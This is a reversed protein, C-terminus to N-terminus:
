GKNFNKIHYNHHNYRINKIRDCKNMAFLIFYVASYQVIFLQDFILILSEDLLTLPYYTLIFNKAEKQILGNFWYDKLLKEDHYELDNFEPLNNQVKLCDLEFNCHKIIEEKFITKIVLQNDLYFITKCLNYISKKIKTKAILNKISQIFKNYKKEGLNMYKIILIFIAERQSLLAILENFKDQQAPTPDSLNKWKTMTLNAKLNRYLKLYAKSVCGMITIDQYFQTILADFSLLTISLDYFYKTDELIEDLSLSSLLEYFKETQKSNEEKSNKTSFNVNIDIMRNVYHM